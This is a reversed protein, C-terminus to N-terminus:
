RIANCLKSHETAKKLIIPPIKPKRGQTYNAATSKSTSSQEETHLIGYKNQVPVNFTTEIRQRKPRARAETPSIDVDAAAEEDESEPLPITYPIGKSMENCQNVSKYRMHSLLKVAKERKADKRM